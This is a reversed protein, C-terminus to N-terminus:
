QLLIGGDQIIKIFLKDNTKFEVDNFIIKNESIKYKSKAIFGLRSHIIQLKCSVESFDDFEFPYKQVNEICDMEIDHSICISYENFRKLPLFVDLHVTDNEECPEHLVISVGEGTMILVDYDNKDLLRENKFVRITHSSEDMDKFVFFFDIKGREAVIYEKYQLLNQPFNLDISM